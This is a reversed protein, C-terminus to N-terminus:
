YFLYDPQISKGVFGIVIRFSIKIARRRKQYNENTQKPMSLKFMAVLYICSFYINYMIQPKIELVLIDIPMLSSVSFLYNTFLFLSIIIICM